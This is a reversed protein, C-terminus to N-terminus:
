KIIALNKLSIELGTPGKHKGVIAQGLVDADYKWKLYGGSKEYVKWCSGGHGATDKSWWEKTEPNRYFNGHKGHIAKKDHNKQPNWMDKHSLSKDSVGNLGSSNFTQNESVSGLQSGGIQNNLTDKSMMTKFFANSESGGYNKALSNHKGQNVLGYTGTAQHSLSM